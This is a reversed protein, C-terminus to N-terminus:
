PIVIGELLNDQGKNRDKSNWNESQEILQVDLNRRQNEMANLKDKTSAANNILESGADLLDSYAKTKKLQLAQVERTLSIVHNNVMTNYLLKYAESGEITKITKPDNSGYVQLAADKKPTGTLTLAIYDKAAKLQNAKM